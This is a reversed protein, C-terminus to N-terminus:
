PSASLYSERPFNLRAFEGHYKLAAEDYARAALEATAFSGIFKRKGDVCIRAQWMPTPNFLSVGKYGSTNTLRIKQNQTNQIPTARRLNHRQYDLTDGNKHDIKIDKDAETCNMILRSMIITVRHRRGLHCDSRKAYGQNYCWNWQNLWKYDADDVLAYQGQTLPIYKTM